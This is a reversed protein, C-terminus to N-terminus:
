VLPKSSIPHLGQRLRALRTKNAPTAGGPCPAKLAKGLRRAAHNGCVACWIVSGTIRLSHGNADAADVPDNVVGSYRRGFRTRTEEIGEGGASGGDAAESREGSTTLDRETGQTRAKKVIKGAEQDTLAPRDVLAMKMKESPRQLERNEGHGRKVGGQPTALARKSPAGAANADSHPRDVRAKQSRPEDAGLGPARKRGRRECLEALVEMAEADPLEPMDMPINVAMPVAEAEPAAGLMQMEMIQMAEAEPLEPMDMPIDVMRSGTGTGPTVGIMQVEAAEGGRDSAAPLRGNASAEASASGGATAAEATRAAAGEGEGGGDDRGAGGAGGGCGPLGGGEGGDSGEGGTSRGEEEEGDEEGFALGGAHRAGEGGESGNRPRWGRSEM